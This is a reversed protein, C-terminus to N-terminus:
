LWGLRGRDPAAGASPRRASPLTAEFQILSTTDGDVLGSLFPRAGAGPRPIGEASSKEMKKSLPARLHRVSLPHISPLTVGHWDIGLTDLGNEKLGSLLLASRASDGDKVVLATGISLQALAHLRQQPGV